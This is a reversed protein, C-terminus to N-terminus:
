TRASLSGARGTGPSVAGSRERRRDQLPTVPLLPPASGAGPGGNATVAGATGGHGETYFVLLPPKEAERQM